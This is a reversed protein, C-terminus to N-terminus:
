DAPYFHKVDSYVQPGYMTSRQVTHVSLLLRREVFLEPECVAQAPELGVCSTFHWFRQQSRAMNNQPFYFKTVLQKNVEPLLFVVQIYHDQEGYTGEKVSQIVAAYIQEHLIPNHWPARM